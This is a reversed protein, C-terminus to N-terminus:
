HLNIKINKGNELYGYRKKKNFGYKNLIGDRYTVFFSEEFMQRMYFKGGNGHGGYTLLKKKRSAAFPDGWRKFKNIDEETMGVFDVCEFRINKKDYDNFNLIIIQDKENVGNRRYADVSNKIWESLGKPHEFRFTNGFIDLIHDDYENKEEIIKLDSM